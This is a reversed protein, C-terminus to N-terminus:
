IVLLYGESFPSKDRNEWHGIKSDGSQCLETSHSYSDPLTCSKQHHKCRTFILREVYGSGAKQKAAHAVKDRTICHYMIINRKVRLITPFVHRFGYEQWWIHATRTSFFGKLWDSWLSTRDRRNMESGRRKKSWLRLRLSCPKSRAIGLVMCTTKSYVVSQCSMYWSERTALGNKKLHGREM